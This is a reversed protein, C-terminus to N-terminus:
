ATRRGPRVPHLGRQRADRTPLRHRARHDAARLDDGPGGVGVHPRRPLAPGGRRRARLYVQMQDDPIRGSRGPQDRPRGGGGAARVRRRADQREPRGPSSWGSRRAADVTRFAACCSRARGQLPPDPRPVPVGPRRPRPRARRARATVTSRTPTGAPTTATRSSRCGRAHLSAPLEYGDIALRRAADCHCIVADALSILRRNFRPELKSGGRDHEGVNHITWVVRVGLRRLMRLELTTRRAAWRRRGFIPSLYRHMWHLHICGPCARASGPSCSPPWRSAAPGAAWDCRSERPM